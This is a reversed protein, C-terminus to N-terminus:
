VMMAGIIYTCSCSIKEQVDDGQGHYGSAVASGEKERARSWMRTQEVRKREQSCIMAHKEQTREKQAPRNKGETSKKVIRRGQEVSTEANRQEGAYNNM